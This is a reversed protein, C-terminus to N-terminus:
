PCARPGVSLDTQDSGSGLSLACCSAQVGDEQESDPTLGPPGMGGVGGEWDQRMDCGDKPRPGGSSGALGRTGRDLGM